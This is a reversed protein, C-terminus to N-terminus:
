GNTSKLVMASAEGPLKGEGALVWKEILQLTCQLTVLLDTTTVIGCPRENRVVPICSLRNQVMMTVAPGIQSDPQVTMLQSTMIARATSGKRERLDRESVIGALKGDDDCVLLHRIHKETMFAEVQEVSAGSDITMVRSSMLHRAELNGHCLNPLEETLMQLIEQRKNFMPSRRAAAAKGLRRAMARQRRHANLGVTLAAVLMGVSLGAYFLRPSPGGADQEGPGQGAPSNDDATAQTGRSESM